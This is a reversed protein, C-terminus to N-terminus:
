KWERYLPLRENVKVVYNRTEEYPLRARLRSYVQDPTMANIVPAARSPSTGADFAKCVNGAGTNYAAISCLMRSMPNEIKKFYRQDLISLYASGLEINREPDYLYTDSLLRDQKYVFLYADRAGSRPVLQMLGYAPVGSRARPNFSSESHIIAYILPAYVGHLAAYKSVAPRFREARVRVHDPVLPFSVAVVEREVKDTGVVKKRAVTPSAAQADAFARANDRTVPTGDPMAVQHDLLPQKKSPPPAPASTAIRPATEPIAAVEVPAAPPAVPQAPPVSAIADATSVAPLAPATASQGPITLKQGVKVWGDADIGNAEAILQRSVSFRKSIKWLSDGGQVVYTTSKQTAVPTPPVVPTPPAIPAPRAISAPPTVIVPTAVPTTTRRRRSRPPGPDPDKAERVSDPFMRRRIMEIPDLTGSLVLNEVGDALLAKVDDDTMGPEVIVEVEAIGDEFQVASREDLTETYQVWRKIEPQWVNRDGWLKGAEKLFADYAEAEEKLFRNYQATVEANYQAFAQQDEQLWQEFTQQATASLALTALLSGIIFSRSATKKNM